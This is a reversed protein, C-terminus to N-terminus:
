GRKLSTALGDLALDRPNETMMALRKGRRLPSVFEGREEVAERIRADHEDAFGGVPGRFEIAGAGGDGLPEDVMVAKGEDSDLRVPGVGRANVSIHAM